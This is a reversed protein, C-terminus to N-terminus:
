LENEVIRNFYDTARKEYYLYLDTRCFNVNKQFREKNEIWLQKVKDNNTLIEKNKIIATELRKSPDDILDYSHDIIDDFMDIGVSRLFNVSGKSCLLIPFCCGYISNLTKETINYCAETFSTESIIEIFTNEYYKSLKNKFNSVNDNNNNSYIEKEDKLFSNNTNARNWGNRYLDYDTVKWKTYEFLDTIDNKFMCSILGYNDIELGNLLSVLMARHARKNRNLSLFNFSSDLNKELVPSLKKYKQQQNVIDGGWPIIHVNPLNIYQELNEVSTLLIFKKDKYFLFLDNLYEAILPRTDNWYNFDGSTLHDKVGIVVLDTNICQTLLDRFKMETDIEFVGPSSWWGFEYLPDLVASWIYIKNYKVELSSTLRSFLRFSFQDNPPRKLITM